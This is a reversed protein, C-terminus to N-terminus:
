ISNLEADSLLVFRALNPTQEIVIRRTQTHVILTAPEGAEWILSASLWPNQLQPVQQKIQELQALIYEMILQTLCYPQTNSGGRLRNHREETSADM